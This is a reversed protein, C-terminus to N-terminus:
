PRDASQACSPLRRRAADAQLGLQTRTTQQWASHVDHNRWLDSFVIKPNQSQRREGITFTQFPGILYRDKGQAQDNENGQRLSARANGAHRGAPPMQRPWCRLVPARFRAAGTFRDATPRSWTLVVHPHITMSPRSRSTIPAAPRGTHSRCATAIRPSSFGSRVTPWISNSMQGTFFDDGLLLVVDGGLDREGAVVM